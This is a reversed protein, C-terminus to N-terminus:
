IQTVNKVELATLSYLPTQLGSLKHYHTISVLSFLSM